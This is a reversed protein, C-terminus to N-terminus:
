IEEINVIRDLSIGAERARMLGGTFEGVKEPEHADSSIVFKVDYESAIKMEDITLHPHNTSIEMLVDKQACAKAIKNMDVPAKDGPHTLIKIDNNEIASLVMETNPERLKERQAAERFASGRDLGYRNSRRFGHNFMWNSYSRGHRVGYHYGALIFDFRKAEESTIDLGNGGRVINAEVSLYIKIEPYKANLENIESRMLDVDSSQIGYFIHGPGHDSIAIADLGKQIAVKVNDEITGKAHPRMGKGRSYITHTHYDFTMRYM